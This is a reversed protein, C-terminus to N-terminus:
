MEMVTDVIEDFLSFSKGAEIGIRFMGSVVSPSKCADGLSIGYMDACRERVADFKDDLCKKVYTELNGELVVGGKFSGVPYDQEDEPKVGCIRQLLRNRRKAHEADKGKANVDNDFVVLTPIEFHRLAFLPKDLKTKGGVDIVAIGNASIDIGKALFAAEVIAKDSVGEVLVVKDAFFAESIERSFIHLGVEFQTLPMPEVGLHGAIATCFHEMSLSRCRTLEEGIAPRSLIRIQDVYRIDVMKESHTTYIIQVRIGSEENFNGAIKRFANFFLSQKIPHQYIEPEEVLLIIDSQAEQFKQVEGADGQETSSAAREALFQVLSVFVARQLGHGVHSVDVKLGRHEINVVPAPFTVTLDNAKDLTAVLSTDSYYSSLM